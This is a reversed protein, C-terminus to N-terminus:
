PLCGGDRPMIQGLKALHDGGFNSLACLLGPARRGWPGGASFICAAPVVPKASVDRGERRSPKVTDKASEGPVPKEQGRTAVVRLRTASPMLVPIGPGRSKATRSHATRGHATSGVAVGERGDCRWCLVRSSRSAGRKSLRLRASIHPQNARRRLGIRKDSPSSLNRLFASHPLDPPKATLSATHQSHLSM